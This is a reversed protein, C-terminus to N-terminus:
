KLGGGRLECVCLFVVWEDEGYQRKMSIEERQVTVSSDLGELQDDVSVFVNNAQGQLLQSCHRQVHSAESCHEGPHWIKGDLGLSTCGGVACPWYMSVYWRSKMWTPRTTCCSDRVTWTTVRPQWTCRPWDMRFSIDCVNSQNKKFLPLCHAIPDTWKSLFVGKGQHKSKVTWCWCAMHLLFDTRFSNNGVTGQNWKEVGGSFCSASTYDSGVKTKSSHPAEKELLLDVVAEHGSRAACHLPTLGDQLFLCPVISWIVVRYFCNHFLQDFQTLPFVSFWVM